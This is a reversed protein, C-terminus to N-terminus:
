DEEDGAFTVVRTELLELAKGHRGIVWARLAERDKLSVGLSLGSTDWQRLRILDRDFCADCPTCFSRDTLPLLCGCGLCEGESWYLPVDLDVTGLDQRDEQFEPSPDCDKNRRQLSKGGPSNM